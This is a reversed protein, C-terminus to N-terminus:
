DAVLNQLLRMNVAEAISYKETKAATPRSDPERHGIHSPFHTKLIEMIAAARSRRNQELLIGAARLSLHVTPRWRQERADQIADFDLHELYTMTETVSYSTPDHLALWASSFSNPKSWAQASARLASYTATPLKASAQATEIAHVLSRGTRGYILHLERKSRDGQHQHLSNVFGTIASALGAGFKIESKVIALSIDGFLRNLSSMSLEKKLTEYGVGMWNTPLSANGEAVLCSLLEQVFRLDKLFHFSTLQGSAWLWQLTTEGAKTHQMATPPHASAQCQKRLAKLCLTASKLTMTGCSIHRQFIEMLGNQRTLSESSIEPSTLNATTMGASRDVLLPSSLISQVHANVNIVGRTPHRESIDEKFSANLAKLLMQAERPTMPLPPHIRRVLAKWRLALSTRM